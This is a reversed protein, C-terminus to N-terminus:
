VKFIMVDDGFNIIKVMKLYNTAIKFCQIVGNQLIQKLVMIPQLFALITIIDHFQHLNPMEVGDSCSNLKPQFCIGM